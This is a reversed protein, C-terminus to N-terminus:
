RIDQRFEALANNNDVRQALALALGLHMVASNPRFRVASRLATTAPEAQKTEELAMGLNYYAEGYDPQLKVAARFEEVAGATDGQRALAIGRENHEVAAPKLQKANNVPAQAHLRCDLVLLVQVLLVALGLRGLIPMKSSM